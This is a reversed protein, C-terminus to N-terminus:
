GDFDICHPLIDRESMQLAVYHKEYIGIVNNINSWKRNKCCECCGLVSFWIVLINKQEICTMKIYTNEYNRNIAKTLASVHQM